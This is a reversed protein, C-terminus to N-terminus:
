FVVPDEEDVIGVNFYDNLSKNSLFGSSSFAPKLNHQSKLYQQLSTESMQHEVDKIIELQIEESVFRMQHKKKKASSGLPREGM